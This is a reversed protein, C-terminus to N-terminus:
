KKRLLYKTLTGSMADLSKNVKKSSDKDGMVAATALSSHRIQTANASQCAASWFEMQESTM